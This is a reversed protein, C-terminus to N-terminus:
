KSHQGKPAPKTHNQHNPEARHKPAKIEPRGYGKYTFLDDTDKLGM